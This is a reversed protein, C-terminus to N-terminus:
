TAIQQPAASFHLRSLAADNRIGAPSERQTLRPFLCTTIHVPQAASSKGQKSRGRRGVSILFSLRAIAMIM